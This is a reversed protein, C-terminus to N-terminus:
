TRGTSEVTDEFGGKGQGKRACLRLITAMYHTNVRYFIYMVNPVNCSTRKLRM